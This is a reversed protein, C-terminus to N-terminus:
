LAITKDCHAGDWLFITTQLVLFALLAVILCVLTLLRHGIPRTIDAVDVEFSWM